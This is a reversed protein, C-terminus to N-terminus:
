KAREIQLTKIFGFPRFFDDYEILVDNVGTVDKENLKFRKLLDKIQLRINV